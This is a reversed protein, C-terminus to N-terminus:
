VQQLLTKGAFPHVGIRARVLGGAGIHVARSVVHMGIQQEIVVIIVGSQGGEGMFPAVGDVRQQRRFVLGVFFRIIGGEDRFRGGDGVFHQQVIVHDRM